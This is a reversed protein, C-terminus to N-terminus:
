KSLPVLRITIIAPGDDLPFVDDDSLIARCHLTNPSLGFTM